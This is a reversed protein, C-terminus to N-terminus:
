PKAKYTECDTIPNLPRRDIRGSGYLSPEGKTYFGVSWWSVASKPVHPLRWQCQGIGDPHLRGAETKRWEALNCTLCLHAPKVSM